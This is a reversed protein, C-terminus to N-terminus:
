GQRGLRADLAALRAEARRRAKAAEDAREEAQRRAAAAAELQAGWEASWPYDKGSQLDRVRLFAGEPRFSVGLVDSRVSGAERALGPDPGLQRYGSRKLAYGVLRPGARAQDPQFVFYERIRIREYLEKKDRRNRVDSSPSVVELAFDPPKGEEWVKYTSRVGLDHGLVVILDPAM